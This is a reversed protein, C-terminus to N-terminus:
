NGDWQPKGYDDYVLDRRRILGKRRPTQLFFSGVEVQESPQVRIEGLGFREELRRVNENGQGRLNSTERPHCLLLVEKEESCPKLLQAVLDFAIASEVLHRFAPHYPGALVHDRLEETPQLGLRAVPISAREMKILGVKLWQTAEELLLPSYRQARWLSELPAGKLVLTPHIRVFHPRLEIIRDLTHLFLELTDGPLGMMLQVGVEFGDEMLRRVASVTDEAKHGRGSLFLVQDDMSQAGIEVTKVRFSTLFNLSKEDLADPRTSVRISDIQGSSMFPQVEQLYLIQDSGKMATFSGGYFAVQKERHKQCSAIKEISSAIRERVALPSPTEASM